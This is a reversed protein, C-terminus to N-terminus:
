IVRVKEEAEMKRNQPHKHSNQAGQFLGIYDRQKLILQNVIKTGDAGKM